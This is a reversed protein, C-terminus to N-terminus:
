LSTLLDSAFEDAFSIELRCAEGNLPLVVQSNSLKLDFTQKQHKQHVEVMAPLGKSVGESTIQHLWVKLEKSSKVPLQFIVSRLKTFAPVEGSAAQIIQKHGHYVLCIEIPLPNGKGTVSFNAQADKSQDVRLEVVTRPTFAGRRIVVFTMVLIAGSMVLAVSRQFPDQWIALGYVLIGTLFILYIAVVVLPHGLFRFVLGPVYDGRRRSAVLMLMPFIGGLLPVTLIGLFSLPGTFSERNTLLLWEILLFLLAVPTIGIWFRGGKSLVLAWARQGISSPSVSATPSPRTPLWERAQNFLALSYHISAMGMGLVVFVSGFVYVIPGVVAALPTLATGSTNALAAPAVSGNVIVVWLCYLGGAVALAAINGWTLAWGSPDRRLVVKAANGASTHGFYAALVVGFILELIAPEFSQGGIFPVNLYFLNVARIHFLSLLSIILILGINVAGVLLASAVTANLNERRLFYLGILFLLAAWLTASTGTADALTTALGIYYALLTLLIDLLLVVTLIFTGASGLYDGVLRGFYTNGYRM